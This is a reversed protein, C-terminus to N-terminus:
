SPRGGATSTSTSATAIAVAEDHENSGFRMEGGALLRVADRLLVLTLVGFCLPVPAMPIWMPIPILGDSLDNFQWASWAMRGAHWALTGCLGAAGVHSVVELVRRWTRPLRRHLLDVRVHVGQLYAYAIGFFAMGVMLFTVIEESSPVLIGFPRLVLTALLVLSMGVLCLASLAGLFRIFSNM